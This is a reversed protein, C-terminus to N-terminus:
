LTESTQVAALLARGEPTIRYRQLRSQPKDPLTMAILGQQMLRSIQKHLEGSVSRHGLGQALGAKGAEQAHLLLFVKAALKSELRSELREDSLLPEAPTAATTTNAADQAVDGATHAQAQALPVSLRLGTAIETLSPAPLGQEKAMAFIRHVGSGWQESPHLERFVRAIAHPNM